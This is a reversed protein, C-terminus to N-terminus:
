CDMLFNDQYFDSQLKKRQESILTPNKVMFMNIEMTIWLSPLYVGGLGYGLGDRSVGMLLIILM